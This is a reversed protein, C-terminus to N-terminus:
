ALTNDFAAPTLKIPSVKPPGEARNALAALFARDMWTLVAVHHPELPTGSLRSWAEIEGYTIPNPGSFGQSRTACLSWFTGWLVAGGEPVVPTRSTRVSRRVAEAMREAFRDWGSM